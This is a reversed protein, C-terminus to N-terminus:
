DMEYEKRLADFFETRCDNVSKGRTQWHAQSPPQGESGGIMRVDSQLEQFAYRYQGLIRVSKLAGILMLRGELGHLAALAPGVKKVICNRVDTWNLEVAIPDSCDLYTAYAAYLEIFVSHVQEFEGALREILDFRRKSIEGRREYRAKLMTVVITAVATIAAGLGIKVASDIIELTTM